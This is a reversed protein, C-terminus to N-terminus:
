ASGDAAAAFRASVEDVLVADPATGSDFLGGVADAVIRKAREENMGHDALFWALVQMCHRHWGSQARTRDAVVTVLRTCAREWCWPDVASEPMDAPPGLTAFREALEELWRRWEQLAEVVRPATADATTVSDSACCWAEVVGGDLDGEGVSWNWGCAWRGCREVLLRTVADLSRGRSEAAVEAAPLLPAVLKALEVAANWDLTFPHRGPDVDSWQLAFPRVDSVAGRQRPRGELDLSEGDVAGGRAGPQPATRRRLM